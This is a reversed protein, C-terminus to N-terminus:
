IISNPNTESEKNQIVIIAFWFSLTNDEGVGNMNM